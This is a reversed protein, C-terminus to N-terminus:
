IKKVWLFVNTQGAPAVLKSKSLYINLEVEKDLSSLFGKLNKTPVLLNYYLGGPLKAGPEVNGGKTVNFSEMVDTIKSSADIVDTSQIM